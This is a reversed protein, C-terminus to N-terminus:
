HTGPARAGVYSPLGDGAGGTAAPSAAMPRLFGPEGPSRSELLADRVTQGLPSALTQEPASNDEYINNFFRWRGARREFDPTWATGSLAVLLNNGAKGDFDAEAPELQLWHRVEFFTNNCVNFGGSGAAAPLRLHIADGNRFVNHEIRVNRAAHALEIHTGDGVFENGDILVSNAEVATLTDERGAFIGFKATAFRCLRITLPAAETGRCERALMLNAWTADPPQAITLDQLTTGAVDGSLYVAHHEHGGNISFGEVVVDRTGLIILSALRGNPNSANITAHRPSILRVGRLRVPEDIVIPGEYGANDLVRIEDGPGARKLAGRLSDFDATGDSSVTWTRPARPAEDISDPIAAAIVAPLPSAVSQLETAPPPPPPFFALRGVFSGVLIVATAAVAFRGWLRRAPRPQPPESQRDDSFVQTVELDPELAELEPDLCRSLEQDVEEASSFRSAPEKKLLRDVIRALGRPIRADLKNLPQPSTEIIRWTTTAMTESHFPSEGAVMAYIVCGLSFLDTRHDTTEGRVQEPSMYNPTGLPRGTTTLNDSGHSLMALGFDAIWATQGDEDLLINSPKIDRHIVGAVHAVALGRAIQRAISVIWDVERTPHLELWAQLSGGAIREMVLYLTDGEEFMGIVPVIHLGRLMAGARAERLFRKRFQEDKSNRPLLIKVAVSQGTTLDRAAYVIGMGGQGLAHLLEYNGIRRLVGPVPVKVTLDHSHNTEQVLEAALIQSLQRFANLLLASHSQVLAIRAPCAVFGTQFPIARM